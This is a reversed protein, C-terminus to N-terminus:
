LGGAPNFMANLGEDDMVIWRQGEPGRPMLWCGKPVTITTPGDERYDRVTIREFEVRPESESDFAPFKIEPRYAAETRFNLALWTIIETANDIGGEFQVAPFQEAKATFNRTTM